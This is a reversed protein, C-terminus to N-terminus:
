SVSKSSCDTSIINMRGGNDPVAPRIIEKAEPMTWM